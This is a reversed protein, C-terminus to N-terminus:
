SYRGQQLSFLMLGGGRPSKKCMLFMYFMLAFGMKDIPKVYQDSWDSM